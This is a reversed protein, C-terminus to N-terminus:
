IRLGCAVVKKGEVDFKIYVHFAVPKLDRSTFQQSILWTVDFYWVTKKSLVQLFLDLVSFTFM